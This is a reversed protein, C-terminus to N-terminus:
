DASAEGEFKITEASFPKSIHGDIMLKLYIHYNPLNVLDSATIDPYFEKALLEADTLGLRFTIISGVNGFIADRVKLDLQTLYQHALVLSLRFKRAESLITALSLTTFSQFQYGWM